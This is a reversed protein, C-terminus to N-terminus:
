IKLLRSLTIKGVLCSPNEVVVLAINGVLCSPNEVVALAM